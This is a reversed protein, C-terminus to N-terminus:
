RFAADNPISLILSLSTSFNRLRYIKHRGLFPGRIVVYKNIARKKRCSNPAALVSRTLDEVAPFAPMCFFEEHRNHRVIIVRERLFMLIWEQIPNM